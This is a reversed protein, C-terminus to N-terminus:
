ARLFFAAIMPVLADYVLGGAGVISYWNEAALTVLDKTPFCQMEDSCGLVFIEDLTGGQRQWLPIQLSCFSWIIRRMKIFPYSM